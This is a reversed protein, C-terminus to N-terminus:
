SRSQAGDTFLEQKVFLSFEKIGQGGSEAIADPLLTDLLCLQTGPSAPPYLNLKPDCRM